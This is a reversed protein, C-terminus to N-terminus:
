TPRWSVRDAQRELAEAVVTARGSFLSSQAAGAARLLREMAAAHSELRGDGLIHGVEVGEKVLEPALLLCRHCDLPDREACLCAIRRGTRLSLLRALGDRFSTTGALKAYSVRGEEYCSPDSPRGGLERGLFLYGIGAVGLSRELNSGNFYPNFRSRPLSRVDVVLTVAHRRLIELFREWSHNSHGLTLIDSGTM